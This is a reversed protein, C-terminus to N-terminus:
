LDKLEDIVHRAKSDHFLKDSLLEIVDRKVMKFRRDQDEILHSLEFAENLYEIARMTEDTHYQSHEKYLDKQIEQLLEGMDKVSVTAKIEKVFAIISLNNM